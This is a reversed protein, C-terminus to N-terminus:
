RPGGGGNSNSVSNNAGSAQTTAAKYIGKSSGVAVTGAGAGNIGKTHLLQVWAHPSIFLKEAAAPPGCKGVRGCYKEVAVFPPCTVCPVPVPDIPSAIGDKSKM